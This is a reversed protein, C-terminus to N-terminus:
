KRYIINLYHSIRVIMMIAFDMLQSDFNTMLIYHTKLDHIFYIYNLVILLFFCIPVRIITQISLYMECYIFSDCKQILLSHNTRFWRKSYNSWYNWSIGTIVFFVQLKVGLLISKGEVSFHTCQIELESFLNFLHDPIENYSEFVTVFQYKWTPKNTTFIQYQTFIGIQIDSLYQVSSYQNISHFLTSFGFYLNYWIM